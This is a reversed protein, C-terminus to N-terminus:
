RGRNKQAKSCRAKLAASIHSSKVRMGALAATCPKALATKKGFTIFCLVFNRVKDARLIRQFTKFHFRRIAM